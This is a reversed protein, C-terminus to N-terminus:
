EAGVLDLMGKAKAMPLPQKIYKLDYAQQILKEFGFIKNIETVSRPSFEPGRKADRMDLKWAKAYAAIGAETYNFDQGKELARMFKKATERNKALWESNAAIVRVTLEALEKAVEGTGIARAQGTRILELNFPAALWGTSVQGSMVQTRAAAMGGVSTFKPKIGLEKAINQVALHSTSGARSYVLDKGGDLDKFSKIPSDKPVYWIVNGVGKFVNGLIKIPAGKAYAGIVSLVGVGVAIDQSGTILAQLTAAGGDGFIVSVDLGEKEFYGQAKAQHLMFHDFPGKTSDIARVREAAGAAIPAAVIAAAAAVALFAQLGAKMSMM